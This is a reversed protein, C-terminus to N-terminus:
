GQVAGQRLVDLQEPVVVLVGVQRGVKVLGGGVPEIRITNRNELLPRGNLANSPDARVVGAGPMSMCTGYRVKLM